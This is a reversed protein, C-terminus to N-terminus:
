VSLILRPHGKDHGCPTGIDWCSSGRFLVADVNMDHQIAAEIVDAVHLENQEDLNIGFKNKGCIGQRSSVYDHM